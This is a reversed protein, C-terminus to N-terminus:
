IRRVKNLVPKTSLINYILDLSANKQGAQKMCQTAPTRRDDFFPPTKWHDYNTQVLFWSSSETDNKTSDLSLLNFNDRDRTIVCGQPSFLPFYNLNDIMIM